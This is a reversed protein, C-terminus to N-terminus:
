AKVESVGAVLFITGLGPLVASSGGVWPEAALSNQKEQVM